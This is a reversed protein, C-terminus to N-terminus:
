TRFKFELKFHQTQRPLKVNLHQKDDQAGTNLSQHKNNLWFPKYNRFKKSSSLEYVQTQFNWVRSTCGSQTCNPHYIRCKYAHNLCRFSLVFTVFLSSKSGRPAALQQSIVLLNPMNTSRVVGVLSLKLMKMSERLLAHPFRVNKMSLGRHRVYRQWASGHQITNHMKLSREKHAHICSGLM